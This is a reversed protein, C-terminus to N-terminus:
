SWGEKLPEHHCGAESCLANYLLAGTGEPQSECVGPTYVQGLVCLCEYEPSWQGGHHDVFWWYAASVKDFKDVEYLRGEACFIKMALAMMQKADSTM